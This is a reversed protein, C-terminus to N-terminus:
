SGYDRNKFYGNRKAGTELDAVKKTPLEDESSARAPQINEAAQFDSVQGGATAGGPQDNQGGDYFDRHEAPKESKQRNVQEGTNGTVWEGQSGYSQRENPM